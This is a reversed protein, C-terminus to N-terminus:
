GRCELHALVDRGSAHGDGAHEAETLSQYTAATARTARRLRSPAPGRAAPELEQRLPHRVAGRLVGHAGPVRIDHMLDVM